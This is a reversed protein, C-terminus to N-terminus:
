FPIADDLEEAAPPTPRVMPVVVTGLEAPRDHWSVIRFVPQFNVGYKGTVAIHDAVEVLPVKGQNQAQDAEFSKYLSKLAQKLMWSNSSFERKNLPTSYVNMRFGRKHNGGDPEPAEVGGKDLVIDPAQAERFCFWGLEINHLDMLMRPPDIQEIEGDSKNISWTCEKANFKLYATTQEDGFVLPM